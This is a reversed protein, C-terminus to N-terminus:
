LPIKEKRSRVQLKLMPNVHSFLGIIQFGPQDPDQLRWDYKLLLHSLVVKSENVAFFRGPCAHSGHGFGVHDQSTTVLYAKSEKGPTDRWQVFRYGNYQDPNEYVESDEWMHSSSIAVPTGRPIHTGDKLTVDETAVRRMTIIMNPALRQTEKMVSDMLKLKHFSTKQWGYERTVSIVEERLPAVLEPHRCLDVLVKGVLDSTTHIAAFSLGLQSVVPDYNPGAAMEEVYDLLLFDDMKPRGSAVSAARAQRRKLIVPMLLKSARTFYARQGRCEPLVWHVIRHCWRPWAQLAQIAYFSHEVYGIATDIWRQDRCIGTGLFIRASIQAIIQVMTANLSIDHWEEDDTWHKQIALATEERITSTLQPLARTLRLVLDHVLKGHTSGNSFPQFGPLKTCWDVELSKIHSFRPDNRLEDAYEGPLVLRKGRETMIHFMKAKAQCKKLAEAGSTLFRIKANMFSLEGPRRDHFFPITSAPQLWWLSLTYAMLLGLIWKGYNTLFGHVPNATTIATLDLM